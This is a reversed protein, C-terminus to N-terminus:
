DKEVETSAKRRRPARRRPTPSEEASAAVEGGDGGATPAPTEETATETVTVTAAAEIAATAAQEVGVDRDHGHGQHVIAEALAADSGSEQVEHRSSLAFRPPKHSTSRVIYIRGCSHCHFRHPTLTSKLESHGEYFVLAGCSPCPTNTPVANGTTM